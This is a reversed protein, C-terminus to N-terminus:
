GSMAPSGCRRRTATKPRCVGSSGPSVDAIPNIPQLNAVFNALVPSDLPAALRAINVPALHFLTM